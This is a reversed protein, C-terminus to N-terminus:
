YNEFRFIKARPISTGIKIMIPVHDSATKALPIASTDPYSLTWAESTFCWDLKELLPVEQMNSWTFSRGKLPIEILAQHNIAENFLLMDQICGGERNRNHPYRVYNFDGLILWCADDDMPFNHFWNIFDSRIDPQCPGYVNTLYWTEGSQTSTFQISISYDNVHFIHRQFLHENWAILLGGSAGVSPLYEFKSLIRPYFNRLYSSDFNERKTEQLCIISCASEEIKNSIATWKKPDNLGRV